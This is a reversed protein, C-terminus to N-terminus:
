PAANLHCIAAALADSADLPRPPASLGLLRTIMFAVQTKDAAGRGTVARKIQMPTYEAVELGMESGALLAAARAHALKILTLVNPGKFVMEVSLCDPRHEQIVARLSGYIHSLREPLEGESRIAGYGVPILRSGQRRVIGWGTAALGPDVGLVIM